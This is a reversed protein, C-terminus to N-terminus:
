WNNPLPFDIKYVRKHTSLDVYSLGDKDETSQYAFIAEEIDDFSNNIIQCHCFSKRYTDTVKMEKDFELNALLERYNTKRLNFILLADNLRLKADNFFSLYNSLLFILANYQKLTDEDELSIADGPVQSASYIWKTYAVFARKGSLNHPFFTPTLDRPPKTYFGNIENEIEKWYETLYIKNNKLEEKLDNADLRRNIISNARVQALLTFFVLLSGIFQTIPATTGGITDGIVGTSDNFEIWWSTKTLFIPIVFMLAVGVALVIWGFYRLKDPNDLWHEQKEKAM